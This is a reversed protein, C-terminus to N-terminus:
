AGRSRASCVAWTPRTARRHAACRVAERAEVVMTMASLAAIIRNRAPFMWRRAQTGPPLESVIAGAAGVRRHLARASAPYPMEAAGALIAVTPATPAGAAAARAGVDRSRRRAAPQARVPTSRVATPPATSGSRWAREGGDGRGCALGRGLSRAVVVGYPSPRRAGVIAM